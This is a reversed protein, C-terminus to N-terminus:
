IIAGDKNCLHTINIFPVSGKTTYSKMCTLQKSARTRRYRTFFLKQPLLHLKNLYESLLKYSENICPKLIIRCGQFRWGDGKARNVFLMLLYRLTKSAEKAVTTMWITLNDM